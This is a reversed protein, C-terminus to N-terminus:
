LKVEYENDTLVEATATDANEILHLEELRKRVAVAADRAADVQGDSALWVVRLLAQLDQVATRHPQNWILEDALEGAPRGAWVGPMNLARGETISQALDTILAEAVTEQTAAYVANRELARDHIADLTTNNFM